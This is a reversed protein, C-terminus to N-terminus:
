RRCGGEDSRGSDHGREGYGYVEKLGRREEKRGM